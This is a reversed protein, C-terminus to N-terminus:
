PREWAFSSGHLGRAWSAADMPKKGAPTVELLELAADVCGLTVAGDSAVSIAGTECAHSSPRAGRVRLLKGAALARAPHADSSALVHRWNEEASLAPSLDLEGKGIRAAYTALSDDQRQWEVGGGDLAELVDLLGYGGTYAIDREVDAFARGACPVSAQWAVPGTDLGEEMAMISVGTEADGALIAREIPAAGRWRPLLSAHVNVCGLRPIGLATKPLICGFAAVCAVDPALEAIARVVEPAMRACEITPIGLERAKEKVASPVLRKGRGRVADPRTLVGVVEHCRALLSLVPVSFEPTGMFVVRM